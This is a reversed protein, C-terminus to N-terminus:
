HLRCESRHRDTVYRGGTTDSGSSSSHESGNDDEIASMLDSFPLSSAEVVPSTTLPSKYGSALVFAGVEHIPASSSDITASEKKTSRRTWETDDITSISSSLEARKSKKDATVMTVNSNNWHRYTTENTKGPAIPPKQDTPSAAVFRGDLSDPSTVVERHRAARTPASGSM